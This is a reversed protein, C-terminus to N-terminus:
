DFTQIDQPYGIQYNISLSALITSDIALLAIACPDDVIVTFVLEDTNTYSAGTYKATVKLSYTGVKGIDSSEIALTSTGSTFTFLSSDLAFGDSKLIDLEIAPCTATSETSSVNSTSLIQSDETTRM